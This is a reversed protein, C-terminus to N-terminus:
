VIITNKKNRKSQMDNVRNKKKKSKKLKIFSLAQIILHIIIFSHMKKSLM